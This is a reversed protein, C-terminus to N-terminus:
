DQFTDFPSNNTKVMVGDLTENDSDNIFTHRIGPTVLLTSGSSVIMERGDMLVRGIGATFYFYETKRKHYHEFKGKRFRFLQIEIGPSSLDAENALLKTDYGEKEIWESM